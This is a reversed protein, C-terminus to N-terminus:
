RSVSPGMRSPGARANSGRGRGGRIGRGGRGRVGTVTPRSAPATALFHATAKRHSTPIWEDPMAQGNTPLELLRTAEWRREADPLLENTLVMYHLLARAGAVEDNLQQLTVGSLRMHEMIEVMPHDFDKVSLRVLSIDNEAPLGGKMTIHRAYDGRHLVLKAYVWGAHIGTTFRSRLTCMARVTSWEITGDDRTLIGFKQLTRPTATAIWRRYSDPQCDMPDPVPVVAPGARTTIARQVAYQGAQNGRQVYPDPYGAGSRGLAIHGYQMPAGYASQWQSTVPAQPARQHQGVGYGVASYPDATYPDSSVNLANRGASLGTQSVGQTEYAPEFAGEDDHWDEQDDVEDPEEQEPTRAERGSQRDSSHVRKRSSSTTVGVDLAMAEALKINKALLAQVQALAEDRDRRYGKREKRLRDNDTREEKFATRSAALTMNANRLENEVVKLETELAEVKVELEAVQRLSEALEDGTDSERRRSRARTTSGTRSRSSRCASGGRSQSRGRRVSDASVPRRPIDPSPPSMCVDGGDLSSPAVVPAVSSDADNASMPSLIRYSFPLSFPPCYPFSIARRGM